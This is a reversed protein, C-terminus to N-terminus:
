PRCQRSRSRRREGPRDVVGPPLVTVTVLGPVCVPVTPVAVLKCTEAVSECDPCVSVKEAVPRGAPSVILEEPRIEPVGVVAALLVTVTVAVSM